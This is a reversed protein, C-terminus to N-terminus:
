VTAVGRVGRRWWRPLRPLSVLTKLPALSPLTLTRTYSLKARQEATELLKAVWRRSAPTPAELRLAERLDEAAQPFCALTFRLEGRKSRAIFDTPGAAVARDLLEQATQVDKLHLHAMGAYALGAPDDPAEALLAELHTLAGAYDSARLLGVATALRDGVPAAHADQAGTM